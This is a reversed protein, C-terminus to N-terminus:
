ADDGDEDGDDDGDHDSRMRGPHFYSNIRRQGHDLHPPPIWETVGDDRKRTRWGNDTANRNDPGCALTLDDIDTRGGDAWDASAHHVQCWQAPVTCGPRSCGREVAYLVLRQAPTALRTDRGRYLGCPKAGDFLLLYNYSHAGMRILDRVPLATGGATQAQGTREQLDTLSATAIITVPLGNHSGLDGSMLLARVMANLADHNRQAASRCDRDSVEPAPPGTTIPNDDIPNCMGPAALKAFVADIGARLEPTVWGALRSMGDSQQPGLTVGRRRARDADRFIGDPNLVQALHDAYRALEDPRYQAAIEALDREARAKAPEDVCSPLREFFGRIVAVHEASIHGARQGAATHELRPAVPQGILTTRPALDAAEDVRRRAESRRVRLSDALVQSLPGGLEEHTAGTLGNILQHDGGPLRRRWNERRELLRLRERHTLDTLDLQEVKDLAADVAEYTLVAETFKISSM